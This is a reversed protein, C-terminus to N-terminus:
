SAGGDAPATAGAGVTAGAERARRLADFDVPNILLPPYGGDRSVDAVINRAFPFLHAPVEVGLIREYHAEPVNEGLSVLSGFDLEIMFATKDEVSANVKVTLVVEFIRAQYRTAKVDINVKIQPATRQAFIAPANPNEFSLDKIYHRNIILRADTPVGAQTPQEGGGALTAADDAM